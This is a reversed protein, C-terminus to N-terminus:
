FNPWWGAPMAPVVDPHPAEISKARELSGLSSFIPVCPDGILRYQSLNCDLSILELVDGVTFVGQTLISRVFAVALRDNEERDILGTAGLAALCFGRQVLSEVFSREQGSRDLTGCAFSGLFGIPQCNIFTQISLDPVPPLNAIGIGGYAAWGHHSGHGLYLAAGIGGRLADLLPQRRIRESTWRVMRQQATDIEFANEIEDLRQANRRSYEGLLAIPWDTGQNSEFRDLVHAAMRAFCELQDGDDPLWGIPINQNEVGVLVASSIAQAPPIESPGVILIGVVDPIAELLFENWNRIEIIRVPRHSRHAHILPELRELAPGTAIVQWTHRLIKPMFSM